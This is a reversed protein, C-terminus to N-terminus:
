SPKAALQVSLIDVAVDDNADGDGLLRSPRTARVPRSAAVSSPAAGADARIPSAALPQTLLSALAGLGPVASGFNNAWLVYDAGSVVGDGNCSGIAFGADSGGFSNAWLVYDAGTVSGSGNFDGWLAGCEYAGIEAYRVSGYGHNVVGPHDCRYVGLIDAPTAGDGDAADVCPSATQLRLGDDMTLFVNDPGDPDGPAVFAPNADMNGGANVGFAPNWNASGGSGLVDCCHFTPLPDGPDPQVVPVAVICNMFSADTYAIGSDLVSSVLTCNTFNGSIAHLTSGYDGSSHTSVNDVFVSDFVSAVCNGMAGGFAASNGVFVNGEILADCQYMGGGSGFDGGPAFDEARNYAIINDRITGDCDALGGGQCHGLNGSILNNEILGDCDYLGGGPFNGSRDTLDPEVNDCIANQRITGDCAALGRAINGSVDNDEILGDCEYIGGGAFHPSEPWTTVWYFGNATVRNQDVTADSGNGDIGYYGGTLTLGALRCDSTEGGQFTVVSPMNALRPYVSIFRVADASTAAGNATDRVLQVKANSDWFTYTGLLNWQGSDIDQDVTVTAIPSGDRFITYDAASDRDYTGGGAREASWWAWVEWQWDLGQDILEWTATSGTQSSYLSSGNYEDIAGSEGWGGATSFGADLNDIMIGGDYLSMFYDRDGVVTAAVVAPNGPDTSRVTIDVGRFQIAEYYTGPHVIVEDGAQALDIAQQISDFPHAASGDELPDTVDDVHIQAGGAPVPPMAAMQEALGDLLVRPELPEILPSVPHPPGSRGRDDGRRRQHAIRAWRSRNSARHAAGM